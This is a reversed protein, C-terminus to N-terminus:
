AAAPLNLRQLHTIRTRDIPNGNLWDDTRILNIATAAALHELRTKPLGTYRANRIGTVHTAQHMTGEVGARTKYRDKWDQTQEAARAAAVAEHTQRPRLNLGRGTRSTTCQERAPCQRCDPARFLVVITERGERQSTPCWSKSIKGEPCTVQERDWDITFKDLTYGGSRAQASNDGLLPGTLTIGRRRSSILLDASVYGSDACHEGPLLGAAELSDQVPATMAADPVAAHTTQVDTILNPVAARGSDPDDGAPDSVTETLHTKYGTWRTGHKESYRADLDYPSSLMDRGPPLGQKGRERRIVKEGDQSLERYYQQIWIRRLAQV